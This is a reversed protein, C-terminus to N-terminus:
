KGSGRLVKIAILLRRDCEACHSRSLYIMEALAKDRANRENIYKDVDYKSYSKPRSSLLIRLENM